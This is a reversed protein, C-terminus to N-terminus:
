SFVSTNSIGSGTFTFETISGATQATVTIVLNSAPATGGIQTGLISLQNGVVYNLGGNTLTVTYVGRTVDVTFKADVGSGTTSDQEVDVYVASDLQVAQRRTIILLQGPPPPTSFVANNQNVAYDTFEYLLENNLSVALQDPQTYDIVLADSWNFSTTTGSTRYTVYQEEVDVRGYAYVRGGGDAYPASVYMWREDQSIAVDYGFRANGFNQDPAMLLQTTSYGGTVPARYLTAAYGTNNRSASAGAVAWTNQGFKVANGYGTVDPATLELQIDQVYLNNTTDRIYSYVSGADTGTGPSGVLAASLNLPQAVSVGYRSNYVLPDPSFEDFGTFPNQKELVQWHGSGNDDVYARAGSILSNSYPLSAVDSAQSVRM